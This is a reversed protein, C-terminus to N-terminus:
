PGFCLLISYEAYNRGIARTPRSMGVATAVRSVSDPARGQTFNECPQGAMMRERAAAREEDELTMGSLKRISAPYRGSLHRAMYPNGGAHYAPASADCGGM